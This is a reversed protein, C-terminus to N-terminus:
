VNKDGNSGLIKDAVALDDPTTIKINDYHGMTIKVRYGLREALMTDDTGTFGDKKAKEHAEKIIDARFSQPTQIIWLNSRDLTRDVFEGKGEKITDKAPVAVVSVGYKVADDVSNSICEQSVFPRACDHITIIDGDASFVGNFSSDQREKGGAVLKSIKKFPYEELLKECDARDKENIVVVIEDIKGNREFAEITHVFIPKRLKLFLKNKGANMRKAEGAALIVVTVKGTDKM